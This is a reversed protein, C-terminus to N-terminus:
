QQGSIGWIPCLKGEPWLAMLSCHVAFCLHVILALLRSIKFEFKHETEKSFSSLSKALSRLPRKTQTHLLYKASASQIEFACLQPCSPSTHTKSKRKATALSSNNQSSRVCLTRGSGATYESKGGPGESAEM